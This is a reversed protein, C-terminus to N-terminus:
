RSVKMDLHFDVHPRDTRAGLRLVVNHVLGQLLILLHIHPRHRPEVYQFQCTSKLQTRSHLNNIVYVTKGCIRGQHALREVMIIIVTIFIHSGGLNISM